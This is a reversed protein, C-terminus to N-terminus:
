IEMKINLMKIASLYADPVFYVYLHKSASHGTTEFCVISYGPYETISQSTIDTIEDFPIETTGTDSHFAIHDYKIAMRMKNGLFNRLHTIIKDEPLPAISLSCNEAVIAKPLQAGEPPGGKLIKMHKSETEWRVEQPLEEMFAGSTCVKSRVADIEKDTSGMLIIKAKTPITLSSLLTEDRTNKLFSSFLKQNGVPIGWLTEIKEKLMGITMEPTVDFRHSSGKYVVWINKM